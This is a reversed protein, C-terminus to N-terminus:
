RPENLITVTQDEQLTENGRSVVIEGTSLGSTIEVFGDFEFGTRVARESVVPLEDQTTVVWVTVRGDPYRLVADRSVVISSRGTDLGLRGRVSMGPTIRVPEGSTTKDAVVRVLFTRAGPDKIPVITDVKGTLTRGPLADISIDVPTGITVQGYLNQGAQFDFRLNDTAVLELVDDGPNVWEGLEVQRRSIVGAFPARLEHRAVLAQQEREAAVAAALAAEDSTVEARRSDIETQAIGRAPGVKEAEAFRRKSDALETRRQRVDARVRELALEALEGDLKLLVDGVDVRRGEDVRLDAVIGAVATSLMASRPSTITGTVNVQQVITRTAVTEVQVPAEAYALAASLTVFLVALTRYSFAM